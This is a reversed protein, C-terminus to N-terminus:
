RNQAVISLIEQYKFKWAIMFAEAKDIPDIPGNALLEKVIELHGKQVALKLAYARRDENIFGRGILAKVIDLHGKDAALALALGREQADIESTNLILQVSALRGRQAEKALVSREYPTCKYLIELMGTHHNNQAAEIAMTRTNELIIKQTLLYAVIDKRNNSAALVLFRQFNTKLDERNIACLKVNTVSGWRISEEFDEYSKPSIRTNQLIYNFIATNHNNISHVLAKNQFRKIIEGNALLAQVIVLHGQKASNVLAMSRDYESIMAGNALLFQVIELYGNKASCRVAMGRDTENIRAENALLFQVIELHGQEAACRVALGREFEDITAENALLFQVIELHGNEAAFRVALGRDEESIQAENELLLRVIELHGNRAAVEVADGRCLELLDKNALLAQVMKLHGKQAAVVVAAGRATEEDVASAIKIELAEVVLACKSRNYQEEISRVSAKKDQINQFCAHKLSEFVAAAKKTSLEHLKQQLDPLKAPDIMADHYFERRLDLNGAGLLIHQYVDLASKSGNPTAPNLNSLAQLEKIATNMEQINKERLAAQQCVHSVKSLNKLDIGQLHEAVIKWIEEPLPYGLPGEVNEESCLRQRVALESADPGRKGPTNLTVAM